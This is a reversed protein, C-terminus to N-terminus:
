EDGDGILFCGYALCGFLGMFGFFITLYLTTM